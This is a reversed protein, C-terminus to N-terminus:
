FKKTISLLFTRKVQGPEVDLDNYMNEIHDSDLLDRGFLGIELSEAPRWILGLDLRLYDDIPIENYASPITRDGTYYLSQSFILDDRVRLHSSLNAMSEPFDEQTVGDKKGKSYSYGGQLHWLTSPSYDFTLEGGSTKVDSTLYIPPGSFVADKTDYHYLSLEILMNDKPRTRWGLEFADMQEDDLSPDSVFAQNVWVSTLPDYFRAYSVKTYQEVLSAQRYARSYAGWFINQEDLTYSLRAGPQISSGSLDSDEFKAGIALVTNDDL